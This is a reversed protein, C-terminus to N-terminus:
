ILGGGAPLLNRHHRLRRGSERCPLRSDEPLSRYAQFELQRDHGGRGGDRSGCPARRAGFDTRPGAALYKDRLGISESNAHITELGDKPLAQFIEKVELPARLLEDLMLDSVLLVAAGAKAMELLARSEAAFEDDLCGGVVSTDIYIRPVKM